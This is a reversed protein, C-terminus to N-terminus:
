QNPRDAEDASRITYLKPLLYFLWVVAVFLWLLAAFVLIQYYSEPHTMAFIRLALAGLTGVFVIQFFVLPKVLLDGKGVHSLAVMSGIAFVMLSYGGIFVIHLLVTRHAPFIGVLWHGLVIMWFALWVLRSFLTKSAPAHHIYATGLFEASVVAARLLYAARIRGQGELIFSGLLVGAAALHLLLLSIKTQKQATERLNRKNLIESFGLLRPGLFCGVGITISLILGQEALPKGLTAAWAPSQGVRGVLSLLSGTIGFLVGVPIWVFESPYYPGNSIIFRGMLFVLFEILLLTYGLEALVWSQRFIFLFTLLGLFLTRLIETVTATHTGSLRPVATMLFGIVFYTLFLRTQISSHLYVSYNALMGTGYLLWHGVGFLGFLVSLPFFIRFPEEIFKKIM